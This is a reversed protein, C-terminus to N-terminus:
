PQKRKQKQRYMTADAVKVMAEADSADTPYVAIGVSASIDVKHLGNDLLFPAALAAAIKDAVAQADGLSAVDALIVTFEDGGIRAM